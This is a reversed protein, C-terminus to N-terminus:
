LSIAGEKNPLCAMKEDGFDMPELDLELISRCFKVARNFDITPIEGWSIFQKM